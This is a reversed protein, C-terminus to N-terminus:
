AEILNNNHDLKYRAGCYVLTNGYDGIKLRKGVGFVFIIQENGAEGEVFVVPLIRGADDTFYLCFDSGIGFDKKIEDLGIEGKALSVLRNYEIRNRLIFTSEKMASESSVAVVNRMTRTEYELIRDPSDGIRSSFFVFFLVAIVLFIVIAIMLDFSIIQSRKAGKM